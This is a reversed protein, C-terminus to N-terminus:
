RPPGLPPMPRMGTLRFVYRALPSDPYLEYFRRAADRAIGIEGLHVLARMRLWAREEAYPGSPFRREGDEALAVAAQPQTDVEARLK